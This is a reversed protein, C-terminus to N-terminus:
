SRPKNIPFRIIEETRFWNAGLKDIIRLIMFEAPSYSSQGRGSWNNAGPKKVVVLGSHELYEHLLLMNGLGYGWAIGEFTVRQTEENILIKYDSM